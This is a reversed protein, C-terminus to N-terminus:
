APFSKEELTGFIAKLEDCLYMYGSSLTSIMWVKIDAWRLVQINEENERIGALVREDTATVTLVLTEAPSTKLSCVLILAESKKRLIETVAEIMQAATVTNTKQM